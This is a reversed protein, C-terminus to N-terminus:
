RDVFTQRALDAFSQLTAQHEPLGALDTVEAPDQQYAYLEQRRDRHEIYHYRDDIVCRRAGRSQSPAYATAESILESFVPANAQSGEAFALLSQGPFTHDTNLRAFGLLTAPLDALSVPAKVRQGALAGGPLLILLPVAICEFYLSNGHLFLGHEGFQEGHDSTIIVMTNDLRQRQELEALLRGVQADLYAINSEYADLEAQIEAPTMKEPEVLTGDHDKFRYLRYPRNLGSGFKNEFGAQAVLPEHAEFYNLFAFFPRATQKDLWNLCGRNIAHASKRDLTDYFGALRRLLRSNAIEESLASSLLMENLDITHDEYYDFGRGLGTERGCYVTNAAFGATAYGAGRLGEAITPYAADLPKLWDCSLEGPLRGTFISAHSPLTWPAAAIAKEFVIGRKALRDLNPTTPRQAGYLSLSKARVTDLVLLLINPQKEQGSRGAAAGPSLRSILRGAGHALGLGPALAALKLFERRSLTRSM